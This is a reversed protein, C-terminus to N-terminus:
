YKIDNIVRVQQWKNVVIPKLEIDVCKIENLKYVNIKFKNNDFFILQLKLENDPHIIIMSYNKSLYIIEFPQSKIKFAEDLKTIDEYALRTFTVDEGFGVSCWVFLILLIKM